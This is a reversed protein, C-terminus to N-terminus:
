GGGGPATSGDARAAGTLGLEPALVQEWVLQGMVQYGEAQALCWVSCWRTVASAARVRRCRCHCESVTLHLDDSYLSDGKGSPPKTERTIHKDLDVLTLKGQQPEPPLCM